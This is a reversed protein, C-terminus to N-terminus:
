KKLEFRDCIKCDMFRREIYSEFGRRVPPHLGTDPDGV